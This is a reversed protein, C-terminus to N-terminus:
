KGPELGKRPVPSQPRLSGGGESGPQCAALLATAHRPTTRPVPTAEQVQGCPACGVLRGAARAGPGARGARSLQGGGRLCSRCGVGEGAAGGPLRPADEHAPPPYPPDHSPCQGCQKARGRRGGEPQGGQVRASGPSGQQRVMPSIGAPSGGEMLDRPETGTVSEEGMASPLHGNQDRGLCPGHWWPTAGAWCGKAFTTQPPTPLHTGMSLVFGPSTLNLWTAELSIVQHRPPGLGIGECKHQDGRPLMCEIPSARPAPNSQQPRAQVCQFWAPVGDGLLPVCLAIPVGEEAGCRPCSPGPVDRLAPPISCALGQQRLWSARYLALWLRAGRTRTSVFFM